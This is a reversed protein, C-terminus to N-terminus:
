IRIAFGAIAYYNKVEGLFECNQVFLLQCKIDFYEKRFAVIKIKKRNFFTLMFKVEIKQTSYQNRYGYQFYLNLINKQTRM